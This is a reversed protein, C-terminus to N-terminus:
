FCKCMQRDCVCVSLCVCQHKRVVKRSLTHFTDGVGSPADFVSQEDKLRRKLVAAFFHDNILRSYSVVPVDTVSVCIKKM